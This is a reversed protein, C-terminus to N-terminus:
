YQLSGDRSCPDEGLGLVVERQRHRGVAAPGAAPLSLLASLVHRVDQLDVGDLKLVTVLDEQDEVHAISGVPVDDEVRLDNNM